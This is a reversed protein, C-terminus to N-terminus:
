HPLPSLFATGANKPYPWSFTLLAESAIRFILSRASTNRMLVKVTGDAATAFNRRSMEATDM